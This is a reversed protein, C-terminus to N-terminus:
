LLRLVAATVAAVAVVAIFPAGFRLAVVAAVVGALRADIVLRHGVALTQMAALAALLAIPLLDAVRQTRPHELIRRPLSVGALKLLYCGLSGIVIAAWTM